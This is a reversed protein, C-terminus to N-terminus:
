ASKAAPAPGRGERERWWRRDEERQPKHNAKWWRRRGKSAEDLIPLFYAMSGVKAAAAVNWRADEGVARIIAAAEEVGAGRRGCPGTFRDFRALVRELQEAHRAFSFRAPRGFAAEFVDCLEVVEQHRVEFPEL